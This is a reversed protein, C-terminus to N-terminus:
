PEVAVVDDYQTTTKYMIPGYRGSAHSSDVAELRLVENIYVRLQAGIAEFRVRYWNNTGISLPASDLEVISGGVLKKLSVTNDNRLTVYYYNGEDRYRAALGFWNNAGATATRRMRSHIIQDGTAIGTIARAGSTMDSQTYTFDALRNWTGTQDWEWSSDRQSAFQHTALTTQPNSSLVVNDVDAQTKYMMVGARGHDLADDSAEALLRNDVFVRLRTGITELRVRYSRNLTVALEASALTTFTGNVMRRLLLTNNNRITIYYYNAADTYRTVLGFWKDGPTSAFATPKIDAEISQNTRDTNSWLAAANSVTSTQRYVRSAATTAVTFSSGALPNWDSANGDEFSDQLTAPQEFSPPLEYVYVSRNALVGVAVQRGRLDAWNGFYQDPGRDSALLKAAHRYTGQGDREFLSISGTYQGHLRDIPQTLMALTESMEIDRPSYVDLFDPRQLRDTSTYIATTPDRRFALAGRAAPGGALAYGSDIAVPAGYGGDPHEPSQVILQYPIQGFEGESIRPYLQPAYISEITTNGNPAVDVDGRQDENECLDDPGPPVAPTSRVLQWEGSTPHRRYVNSSWDCYGNTVVITGGNLALDMGNTQIPSAVESWTGGQRMFIWSASEKVIVAVDDEIALRVSPENIDDYFTFQHLQRVPSWSGDPQRQYLWTVNSVYLTDDYRSGSALLWEGDIAVATPWDYSPDPSPIRASEELVLPGSMGALPTMSLLALFTQICRRQTGWRATM